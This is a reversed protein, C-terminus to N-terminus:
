GEETRERGKERERKRQSRKPEGQFPEFHREEVGSEKESEEGM